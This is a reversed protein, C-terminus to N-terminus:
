STGEPAAGLTVLTAGLDVLEGERCRVSEVTGDRPAVLRYEMKMAELVVLVEGAAVKRGPAAAVRIVKGTMPARVENGRAGASGVAERGEPGFYRAGGPWGVWVGPGSRAVALRVRRGEHEFVIWNV